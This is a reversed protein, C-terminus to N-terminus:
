WRPAVPSRPPYVPNLYRPLQMLELMLWQVDWGCVPSLGLVLALVLLLEVVMSGVLM